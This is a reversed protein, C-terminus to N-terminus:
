GRKGNNKRVKKGGRGSLCLSNGERKGRFMKEREKKKRAAVAPSKKGWKVIPLSKRCFGKRNLYSLYCKKGEGWQRFSKGGEAEKFPGGRGGGKRGGPVHM